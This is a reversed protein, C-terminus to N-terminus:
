EKWRALVQGPSTPLPPFDNAAVHVMRVEPFRRALRSFGDIRLLGAMPSISPPTEVFVASYKTYRLADEVARMPDFNGLRVSAVRVGRELLRARARHSRYRAYRPGNCWPVLISDMWGLPTAPALLVFEADRDAQALKSATSVFEPGGDTGELVLLYRAM